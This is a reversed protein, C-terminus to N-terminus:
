NLLSNCYGKDILEKAKYYTDILPLVEKEFDKELVGLGVMISNLEDLCENQGYNNRIYAIILERTKRACAANGLLDRRTHSMTELENILSNRASELNNM